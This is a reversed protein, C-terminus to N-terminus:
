TCKKKMEIEEESEEREESGGMWDDMGNDMYGEV